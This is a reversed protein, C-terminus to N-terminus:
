THTYPGNQAADGSLVIPWGTTADVCIFDGDRLQLVGRNPIYIVGKKVYCQAVRPRVSGVGGVLGTSAVYGGTPGLYGPPDGRVANNFTALDAPIQDNIGVVLATLSTTANTGLTRTAM